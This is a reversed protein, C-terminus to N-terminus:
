FGWFARAAKRRARAASRTSEGKEGGLHKSDWKSIVGKKCLDEFFGIKYHWNADANFKLGQLAMQEEDYQYEIWEGRYPKYDCGEKVKKVIFNYLEDSAWIFSRTGGDNKILVHGGKIKEKAEKKAKGSDTRNDLVNDGGFRQINLEKYKENFELAKRYWDGAHGGEKKVGLYNWWKSTCAKGAHANAAAIDQKTIIEHQWQHLMEHVLTNRFWRFDHSLNTNLEIKKSVLLQKVADFHASYYGYPKMKRNWTIDIKKLVGGFYRDNFVKFWKKAFAETTVVETKDEAKLDTKSAKTGETDKSKNKSGKTRYEYLFSEEVVNEMSTGPEVYVARWVQKFATEMDWGRDYAEFAVTDLEDQNVEFSVSEAFKNIRAKLEELFEKEPIEGEPLEMDLDEDNEKLITYGLSKLYEKAEKILM